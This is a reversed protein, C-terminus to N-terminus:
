CTIRRKPFSPKRSMVATLHLCLRNPLKWVNHVHILSGQRNQGAVEDDQHDGGAGECCGREEMGLAPGNIGEGVNVPFAEQKHKSNSSIVLPDAGGFSNVEEGKNNTPWPAFASVFTAPIKDTGGAETIMWPGTPLMAAKGQFYQDHYPM